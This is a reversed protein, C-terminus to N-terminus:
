DSLVEWSGGNLHACDNIKITIRDGDGCYIDGSDLDNITDLLYVKGVTLYSPLEDNYTKIQIKM